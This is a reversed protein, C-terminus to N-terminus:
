LAQQLGAHVRGAQHAALFAQVIEPSFQSGSHRRLEELAVEEGLAQRYPRDSTMADYADAVMLICADLPLDNGGLGDPYGRGDMREHHHRVGPLISHLRKIPEVIKAGFAAHQRMLQWEEDNLKGPKHLVRDPVGIKGVDHMLGAIKLTEKEEPSMGLQDAIVLAYKTRHDKVLKYPHFIYSRM